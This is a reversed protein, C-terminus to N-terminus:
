EEFANVFRVQLAVGDGGPEVGAAWPRGERGLYAWVAQPLVVNMPLGPNAAEHSLWLDSFDDAELEVVMDRGERCLKM